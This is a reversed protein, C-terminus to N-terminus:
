SFLLHSDAPTVLVHPDEWLCASAPSPRHPVGEEGPSAKRQAAKMKVQTKVAEQANAGVSDGM